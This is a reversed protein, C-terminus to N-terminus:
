WRYKHKELSSKGTLRDFTMSRILKEFQDDKQLQRVFDNYDQVNEIPINIEIDGITTGISGGPSAIFTMLKSVDAIGKLAPASDIYSKGLLPQSSINRLMDRLALFNKTDRYDLMLEPKSPTGDVQALGTYDVLGGTRYGKFKKRMAEYSYEAVDKGGDKMGVGKNVLEQIGNNAGFVETLRRERDPNTGWGLTGRWIAAAVKEKTANDLTASAASATQATQQSTTSSASTAPSSQPKAIDKEANGIVRNADADSTKVMANVKDSISNLVRLTSTFQESFKDGYKSVVGNVSSTSNDWISKLEPTITYGVESAVGNITSNITESNQNVSDIMEGVLADVDDLRTNMNQEYEAYLDDLLKKQDEVMKDYETKALDKQAKALDTQLKQVRARSEESTDGSYAALQKQLSAIESSKETVKDQYDNLSKTRDLAKTYSDILEKMASLEAKIGENVLSVIAQKEKNAATISDRQLKLLKERREILDTNYPDDAIEKDLSLIERAYQEAQSMYVNYSQAHLGATAMGVDTINGSDDFLNSNSMLDILFDAEQTIQSIRDQLYDFHGWEIERITKKYKAIEANAKGIEEQVSNIAIRMSYWADSYEEIEGSDMAASFQRRLYLSEAQLKRINDSEISQLTIYYRESEIRGKADFYDISNKVSNSVHALLELQNKYDKQIKDFNDEYLSALEEHLDQVAQKCDLAKQYFSSFEDILKKTDEDYESIDITGDKVKAALDASLGVSDAQQMYKKYAETQVSVERNLEKIEENTADMKPRLAKFASEATTKLSKIGREIRDILVEIWDHTTFKVEDSSGSAFASGGVFATARGVTRGNALLQESQKHNFVISGRPLEVFEAGNDGVTYWRGTHPDVVIERGLEGVLSEGGRKLGWYGGVFATGTLESSGVTGTATFHTRVKSTDNRWQIVGSATHSQNIWQTVAAINNDWIVTGETTHEAAQYNEILSADLGATVMLEPTIEGISENFADLSTLDLGLAATIEADMGSIEELLGDCASKAETTDAGVATDIELKNYSAKFEQIKKIINEVDTSANSTDVSLVASQDLTQKQYILTELVLQAEKAGRVQLNVEGDSNKFEDLIKQAQSIQTELSEINRDGFNFEIDTRQFAQLLKNAEEAKTVLLDVSEYASDLNIEYGYDSAKRLIAQLTEINMGLAEAAEKNDFNLSWLGTDENFTAWESNLNQIDSIFADIGSKSDTFYKQMVPYGTEYIEKLEAIGAGSLDEGTMLQVAARFKETGVLGDDYLEKIDKLKGALGDYNDGEEGVSQAQEWKYFSSTLGEYMAALMATDDIQALINDRKKYLSARESASAAKDIDRTLDNYQRRLLLLQTNLDQKKQDELANELGRLADTNLHIGNATKEFLAAPDYDDLERYRLAVEEIADASLGTTTVSEKLAKILNDFGTKEADISLVRATFDGLSDSASDASESITNFYSAINERNELNNETIVGLDVLKQIFEDYESSGLLEATVKGQEGLEKLQDGIDKFTTNTLRNLANTKSKDSGLAIAMQDQFDNIYDLYENVAREDESSPEKIYSIGDTDQKFQESRSLLYKSIKENNEELRKREDLYRKNALDDSYQKDLSAIKDANERYTRFQSEIYQSEDIGINMDPDVFFEQQSHLDKNMTDVFAKNVESAKIRQQTELLDISRQLEANQAKLNDLEEAETFTLADKSELESIREETTKLQDNLSSLESENDSYEKKLDILKERARETEKSVEIAVKVLALMAAVMLLVPHAAIVNGLGTLGTKLLETASASDLAAYRVELIANSLNPFSRSLAEIVKQGSTLGLFMEDKSVLGIQKHITAIQKAIGATVLVTGFLSVSETLKDIIGLLSTLGSIIVGVEQRNFINQAVGVATEKLANLKFSLSEQVIGMERMASGASESMTALSSEVADFNNLIAAVVQGGRKGALKELLQAQNKDTLEDYIESIDKLLQYTSKYETKNADTFLSIGGPTKATKTLNAIEGSLDEVGGIFQETEEDYLETVKM